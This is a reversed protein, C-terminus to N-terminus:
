PKLNGAKTRLTVWAQGNPFRVEGVGGRSARTAWELKRLIPALRSLDDHPRLM